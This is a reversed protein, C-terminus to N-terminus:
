TLPRAGVACRSIPVTRLSGVPAGAGAPAAAGAGDMRTTGSALGTGVGVRSPASCTLASAACCPAGADSAAAIAHCSLPKLLASTDGAFARPTM